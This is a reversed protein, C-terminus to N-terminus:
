LAAEQRTEPHHEHPALPHGSAIGNTILAVLEDADLGISEGFAPVSSAFAVLRLYRAVQSPTATLRDADPALLDAIIAEYVNNHHHHDRHPPTRTGLASMVGIIGRFRERLHALVQEVKWELPRSADIARLQRRLPEPDLYRTVAADIIADKDDFARFLTGEAVCAAEAIQRTSVDRGHAILLPVVADAIAARRDEPSLPRARETRTAM